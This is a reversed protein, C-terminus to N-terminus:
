KGMGQAVLLGEEELQGLAATITKRDIGLEAALQPTGPMEGSWAGRLLGDRLYEAVQESASLITFDRM